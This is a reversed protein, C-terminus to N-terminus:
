GKLDTFCNLGSLPRAGISFRESGRKEVCSSYYLLKHSICVAIPGREEPKIMRFFGANSSQVQVLMALGALLDWSLLQLVALGLVSCTPRKQERVPRAMRM